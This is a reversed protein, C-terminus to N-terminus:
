TPIPPLDTDLMDHWAEDKMRDATPHKFEYYSFTGGIAIRLNGNYTNNNRHKDIETVARDKDEEVNKNNDSTDKRSSKDIGCM